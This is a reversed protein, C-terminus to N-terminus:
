FEFRAQLEVVRGALGRDARGFFTNNEVFTSQSLFGFPALNLENFVNYLNIRLDLASIESWLRTRKAVSLDTSFYRPGRFSNRGIGPPGPHTIDFYQTGRGSLQRWSTRIRRGFLRGASWRLVRSSTDARANTWGANHCGARNETDLPFRVASDPDRKDSIGRAATRAFGEQSRRFPLDWVGSALFFTRPTSTPRAANPAFTRLSPRTPKLERVKTRYRM